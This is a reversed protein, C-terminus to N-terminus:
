EENFWPKPPPRRAMKKKDPATGVHRVPEDDVIDPAEDHYHSDQYEHERTPAFEELPEPTPKTMISGKSDFIEENPPFRHRPGEAM